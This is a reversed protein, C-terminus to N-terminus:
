RSFLFLYRMFSFELRLLRTSANSINTMDLCPGFCPCICCCCCCICLPMCLCPGLLKPPNSPMLPIIHPLHSGPNKFWRIDVDVVEIVCMLRDSCLETQNWFWLMGRVVIRRYERRACCTSRCQLCICKEPTRPPICSLFDYVNPFRLVPIPIGGIKIPM